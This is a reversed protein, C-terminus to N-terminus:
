EARLNVLVCRARNKGGAEWAKLYPHQMSNPSQAELNFGLQPGKKHEASLAGNDSSALPSTGDQQREMETSKEVRKVAGKNQQIVPRLLNERM